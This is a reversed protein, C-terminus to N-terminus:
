TTTLDPHVIATSGPDVRPRNQDRTSEPDIRLRILTSKPDIRAPDPTWASGVRPRYACHVSSSRTGTAGNGTPILVIRVLEESDETLPEPDACGEWMEGKHESAVGATAAGKCPVSLYWLDPADPSRRENHIM